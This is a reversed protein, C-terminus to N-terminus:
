RGAAALPEFAATSEAAATPEAAPRATANRLEAVIATNLFAEMDCLARAAQRGDLVRHDFTLHVAVRGDASIPGYTLYGTLPFKPDIADCGFNGLSSILFTGFRKSRSYGSWHLSSWMLFRRLLGPYRGLRLTQRFDSVTWVPAAQFRYIHQNLDLLSTNEPGRVKGGLVVEEGGWEREVLVVCNSEPHEYLRNCPFTTWSQRLAAHRRAALGYAKAFLAVWSVRPNMSARVAALGPIVFERRITVLPVNRSQRLFEAAVRRGISVPLSTGRPTRPM